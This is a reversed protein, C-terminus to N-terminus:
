SVTFLRLGVSRRTLEQGDFRFSAVVFAFAAFSPRAQRLYYTFHLKHHEGYRSMLVADTFHPLKTAGGLHVVVCCVYV